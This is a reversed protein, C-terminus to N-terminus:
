CKWYSQERTLNDRLEAHHLVQGSAALKEFKEKAKEISPFESYQWPFRETESSYLILTYGKRTMCDEREQCVKRYAILCEAYLRAMRTISEDDEGLTKITGISIEQVADPHEECFNGSIKLDLILGEVNGPMLVFRPSFNPSLLPIKSDPATAVAYEVAADHYSDTKKVLFGIDRFLHEATYFYGKGIPLDPLDLHGTPRTIKRICENLYSSFDMGTIGHFLKEVAEPNDSDMWARLVEEAVGTLDNVDLEDLIKKLFISNVLEERECHYCKEDFDFASFQLYDYLFDKFPLGTLSSFVEEISRKDLSEMWAEMIESAHVTSSLLCDALITDADKIEGCPTENNILLVQDVLERKDRKNM